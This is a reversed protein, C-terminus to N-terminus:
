ENHKISETGVLMGRLTNFNQPLVAMYAHIATTCTFYVFGLFHAVRIAKAGEYGLFGMFPTILDNFITLFGLFGAESEALLGFGTVGMFLIMLIDAVYLLKQGPHFKRYYVGRKADYLNYHPYDDDSCAGMACGLITILDKVDKPTPIMDKIHRDYLLIFGLYYVI